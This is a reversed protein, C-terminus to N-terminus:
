ELPRWAAGKRTEERWRKPSSVKSNESDMSPLARKEKKRKTEHRQKTLIPSSSFTNREPLQIEDVSSVMREVSSLPYRGLEFRLCELVAYVGPKGDGDAEGEEEKTRVRERSLGKWRATTERQCCCDQPTEREIHIVPYARSCM